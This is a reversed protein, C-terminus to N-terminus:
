HHHRRQQIFPVVPRHHGLQSAPKGLALNDTHRCTFDQETTAANMANRLLHWTSAALEDLEFYTPSKGSMTKTPIFELPIPEERKAADHALNSIRQIKLLQKRIARRTQDPHLGASARM